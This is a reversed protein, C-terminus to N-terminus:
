LGVCLFSVPHEGVVCASYGDAGGIFRIRKVYPIFNRLEDGSYISTSGQSTMDDPNGTLPCLKDRPPLQFEGLGSHIMIGILEKLLKEPVERDHPFM